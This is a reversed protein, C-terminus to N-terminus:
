NLVNNLSYIIIIKHFSHKTRQKGTGLSVVEINKNPHDYQIICTLVTWEKNAIPKGTKAISEFAELCINTVKNADPISKKDNM